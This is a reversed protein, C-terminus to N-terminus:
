AGREKGEIYRKYREEGVCEKAAKCWDLCSQGARSVMKGCKPCVVSFEDSWIEVEERCFPCEVEEPHPKKFRDAGPCGEIM